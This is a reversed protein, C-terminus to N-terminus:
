PFSESSTLSRMSYAKRRKWNEPWRRSRQKRSGLREGFQIIEKITLPSALVAKIVEEEGGEIRKALEIEAERTLLPVSGMERLYIQPLDRAKAVGEAEWDLEEEPPMFEDEEPPKRSEAERADIVDIDMEDFMTLFDDIQDPAVIDSPLLDNVEDYTLYGKGRGLSILQKIKPMEEEKIMFIGRKKRARPGTGWRLTM